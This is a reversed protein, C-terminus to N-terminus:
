KIRRIPAPLLESLFAQILIVEGDPDVVGSDVSVVDALKQVPVPSLIHIRRRERVPPCVAREEKVRPRLNARAYKDKVHNASCKGTIGIVIAM